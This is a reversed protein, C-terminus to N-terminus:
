HPIVWPLLSLRLVVGSHYYKNRFITVPSPAPHLRPLFKGKRIQNRRPRGKAKRALYITDPIAKDRYLRDTDADYAAAKSFVAQRDTEDIHTATKDIVLPLCAALAVGTLVLALKMKM